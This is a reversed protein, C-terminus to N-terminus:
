EKVQDEEYKTAIHPLQQKKHEVGHLLNEIRQERRLNLKIKNEYHELQQRLYTIITLSEDIKERVDEKLEETNEPLPVQVARFKRFRLVNAEM